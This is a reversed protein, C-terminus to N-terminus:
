FRVHHKIGEKRQIKNAAGKKLTRSPIHFLLRDKRVRSRILPSNAASRSHVISIIPSRYHQWTHPYRISSHHIFM